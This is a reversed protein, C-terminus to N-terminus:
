TKQVKMILKGCRRRRLEFIVSLVIICLLPLLFLLYNSSSKIKGCKGGIELLKIFLDYFTYKFGLEFPHILYILGKLMMLFLLPTLLGSIFIAGLSFYGFKKLSILSTFILASYSTAFYLVLPKLVPIVKTFLPVFLLIGVLATYSYITSLEGITWTFLFAQLLFTIFLGILPKVKPFLIMVLRFLLARILSPKPGIISVYLFLFVLSFYSADKKFIPYLALSLLSSFFALHMGSLALVHSTGSEKALQKIEGEGDLSFGLLLMRILDKEASKSLKNSFSTLIKARINTFGRRKLIYASKGKFGFESFCGGVKIKDGSYLNSGKYQVRIVGMASAEDGNKNLCTKLLLLCNSQYYKSLVSDQLVRGKIAVVSEQPFGLQYCNYKCYYFFKAGGLIFVLLLAFGILIQKSKLKM